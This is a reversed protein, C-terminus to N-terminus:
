GAAASILHVQVRDVRRRRRVLGDRDRGHIQPGVDEIGVFRRIEDAQLALDLCGDEGCTEKQDPSQPNPWAAASWAMPM